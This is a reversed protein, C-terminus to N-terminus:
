ADVGAAPRCVEVGLALAEERPMQEGVELAEQFGRQGLATQAAKATDENLREDEALPKFGLEAHLARMNGLLKAASDPDGRFSAVAAAGELFYALGEQYDLERALSLAETLRQPAEDPQGEEIAAFALGFLWIATGYRDGVSRSL